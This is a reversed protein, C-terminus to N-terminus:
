ALFLRLVAYLALGAALGAMGPSREGRGAAGFAWAGVGFLLALAVLAATTGPAAPAAGADLAVYLVAMVLLAVGLARLRAV